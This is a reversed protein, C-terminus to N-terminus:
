DLVRNPVTGPVYEYQRTVRYIGPELTITAHEQHTLEALAEAIEVYSVLENGEQVEWRTVSPGHLVHHHGTAEGYALVRSNALTSKTANQPIKAVRVLGIDGQFAQFKEKKKM